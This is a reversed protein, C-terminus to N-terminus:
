FVKATVGFVMNVQVEVDEDVVKDTTAETRINFQDKVIYPKLDVGTTELEITRSGDEAISGKSALLVEKEGEASIYISIDNLFDFNADAPSSIRLQLEELFAEKVLDARTNNNRFSQESSSQVEARPISLLDGIGTGQGPITINSENQIKFHILDNLKECSSLTLFVLFLLLFLKNQM